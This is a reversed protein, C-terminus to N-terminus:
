VKSLAGADIPLAIGTVYRAADSALWVVANSIDVPELWPTPLVNMGSQCAERFDEHTPHELDPRFLKYMAEHDIMDTLVSTPHISNCRINHAGLENSATRALGTVGHKAAVYHAFNPFGQLGGTSSILIISGGDGQDILYPVTARLTKWVGSLNVGIMEDWQQETLEHLPASSFIGANAVVTDLRGLTAIGESVAAHLAPLDRVDAIATFVRRDFKEVHRATEDLDQPTAGRYDTTDLTDCIDIAIIDAGEEALRIAHSRGQGRAAGTVLAVKGDLQGM